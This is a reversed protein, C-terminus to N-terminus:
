QGTTLPVTRKKQTNIKPWMRHNTSSEQGPILGTGGANSLRLRLCHVVPSTRPLHESFVPGTAPTFGWLSPSPICDPTLPHPAPTQPYALPYALPHPPGPAPSPCEGSCLLAQDMLWIYSLCQECSQPISVQYSVFVHGNHQLVQPPPPPAAHAPPGGSAGPRWKTPVGGMEWPMEPHPDRLAPHSFAHKGPHTHAHVCM